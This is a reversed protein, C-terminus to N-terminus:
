VSINMVSGSMGDCLMRVTITAPEALTAIAKALDTAPRTEPDAATSASAAWEMASVVM